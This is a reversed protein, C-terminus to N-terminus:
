IHVTRRILDDQYEPSLEVFRACFGWIRVILNPYAEPTRQAARLTEVCVVNGQLQPGGLALYTQLLSQFRALGVEGQLRDPDFTMTLAHNWQCVLPDIKVASQMVATPGMRETGNTPALTVSFPTGARRGDPTAGVQAGAAVHHPQHIGSLFHVGNVEQRQIEYCTFELLDKGILDVADDDNGWKPAALLRRHLEGYGEFDAECAARVDALTALNSDYVTNKVASLSNVACVPSFIFMGQHRYRLGGETLDLGQEICDDLTGSLFPLPSYNLRALFQRHWDAVSAVQAAINSKCADMFAPFAPM